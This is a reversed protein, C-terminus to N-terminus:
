RLEFGCTIYDTYDSKFVGTLAMFYFVRGSRLSIHGTQKQVHWLLLHFVSPTAGGMRLRRLLNKKYLVDRQTVGDKNALNYETYSICEM